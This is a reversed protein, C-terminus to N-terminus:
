KCHIMISYVNYRKEENRVSYCTKNKYKIKYMKNKSKVEDKLHGSHSYM